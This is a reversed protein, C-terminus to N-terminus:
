QWITLVIAFILLKVLWDIAHIAALQKSYNEHIVSGVLLVVPFAVWLWFTLVVSQYWQTLGLLNVSYAIVLGLVFTRVFEAMIVNPTMEGGTIGSKKYSAKVQKSLLTCYLASFGFALLTAVIIAWHNVQM